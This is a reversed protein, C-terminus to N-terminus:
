GFLRIADRFNRIAQMFDRISTKNTVDLLDFQSKLAKFKGEPTSAIFRDTATGRETDSFRADFALEFFPIHVSPDRFYHTIAHINKSSIRNPVLDRYWGRGEIRPDLWRPDKRADFPEFQGIPDLRHNINLFTFCCGEGASLSPRVIGAYHNKRDRSLAYSTNAVMSVHEFQFDGRLTQPGLPTQVGENYLAQIVKHAMACGMSHAVLSFRDGSDAGKIIQAMQTGVYTVLRDQISPSGAFLLLDMLHTYRWDSQNKAASAKDIADTFWGVQDLLLPSLSLAEKLKKAQDEWTAFIKDNEDDYHVSHLKVRQAFAGKSKTASYTNWLSSLLGEFSLGGDDVDEVWENSHKGIGHICLVHHVPM